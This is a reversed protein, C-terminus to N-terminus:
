KQNNTFDAPYKGVNRILLPYLIITGTDVVQAAMEWDILHELLSNAIQSLDGERYQKSWGAGFREKCAQVLKEFDVWTLHLTGDAQRPLDAKNQGERVISAFHLAIDSIAKNDPFLTFRARREPLTLMAMNKYLELQFDSHGEIDERIRNRYNRLYLFDLDDSGRSYMVPSLYLRRYVRHRRNVVSNESEGQWEAELIEEKTTFRFLDKPYSRMFYRATLSVEYLVESDEKQSFGTIDGDVAKVIGLAVATQLVRVLSKRHEYHTWDLGDEWPYLGAIEECLQSLLFQEDVSKSELFALLCCFVAYDRPHQFDQIGMWREPKVPIKELKAFSRHVILRFGLKDLFYTRLIQERERIMQYKEPETERLVWFQEMLCEAAEQAVEDFSYKKTGSEM